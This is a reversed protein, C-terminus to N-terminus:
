QKNNNGLLIYHNRTGVLFVYLTKFIAHLCINIYYVVLLYVYEVRQIPVGCVDFRNFARYRSHLTSSKYVKMQRVGVSM